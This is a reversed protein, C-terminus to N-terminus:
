SLHSISHTMSLRFNQNFSQPWWLSSQQHHTVLLALQAPYYVKSLRSCYKPCQPVYWLLCVSFSPNWISPPQSSHKQTVLVKEQCIPFNSSRWQLVVLKGECLRNNQSGQWKTVVSQNLATVYDSSLVCPMFTGWLTLGGHVADSSSLSPYIKTCAM